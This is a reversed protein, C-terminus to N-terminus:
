KEKNIKGEKIAKAITEEPCRKNSAEIRDLLTEFDELSIPEEYNVSIIGLKEARKILEEEIMWYRGFVIQVKREM